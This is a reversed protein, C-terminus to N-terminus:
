ALARGDLSCALWLIALIKLCPVYLNAVEFPLVLSTLAKFTRLKSHWDSLHLSCEPVDLSLHGVTPWLRLHDKLYHRQGLLEQTQSKWQVEHCRELSM